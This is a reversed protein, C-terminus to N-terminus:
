TTRSQRLLLTRHRWAHFGIVVLIAAHIVVKYLFRIIIGDVFHFLSFITALALVYRHRRGFGFMLYFAFVISLAVNFFRYSMWGFTFIGRVKWVIVSIACAVYLIELIILLAVERKTLV